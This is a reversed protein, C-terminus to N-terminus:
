IRTVTYCETLNQGVNEVGGQQLSDAFSFTTNCSGVAECSGIRVEQNEEHGQYAINPIQSWHQIQYM